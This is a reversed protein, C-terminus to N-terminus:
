NLTVTAGAPITFTTVNGDGDEDESTFDVADVFEYVENVHPNFTQINTSRMHCETVNTFTGPLGAITGTVNAYVDSTAPLEADVQNATVVTNSTPRSADFTFSYDGYTPDTGTISMRIPKFSCTAPSPPTDEGGGGGDDGRNGDNADGVSEFEAEGDTDEVVEIVTGDSLRIFILGHCHLQCVIRQGPPIVIQASANMSVGIIAMVIMAAVLCLKRMLNDKIPNHSNVPDNSAVMTAVCHM